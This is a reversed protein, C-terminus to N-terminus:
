KEGPKLLKQNQLWEECRAPWTSCPNDSKRLGYGHGGKAYIHLEAPVKARKLALYLQVANEPGVPDDNSMAIFMPPTKEGVRIDATLENGPQGNERKVVGGPYIVVAFDPRCDAKDADDVADYARRDDNTSAWAALHGGASFGLIGIRKADIGWDAAHSRTMSLARQADMLAQKPPQGRPTDSRRPVRYKLLVATAGISNLWRAVQEGEHDWALMNYGGGPCVVVGLGTNKDSEPRYVTITPVSVNTIGTTKGDSLKTLTEAPIAVKESEGPPSKPWLELTQPAPADAARAILVLGPGLLLGLGFAAIKRM